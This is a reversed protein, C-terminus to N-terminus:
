INQLKSVQFAAPFHMSGNSYHCIYAAIDMEMELSTNSVGETCIESLFYPQSPLICVGTGIHTTPQKLRYTIHQLTPKM